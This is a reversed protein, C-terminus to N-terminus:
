EISKLLQLIQTKVQTNEPAYSLARSAINKAESVNGQDFAAKSLTYWGNANTPEIRLARELKSEAMIYSENNLDNQAAHLLNVVAVNEPKKTNDDFIIPNNTCANMALACLIILLTKNLMLTGQQLM